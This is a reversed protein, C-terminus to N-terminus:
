FQFYIFEQEVGSGIVFVAVFVALGVAVAAPWAPRMLRSALDQSSPGLLAVAGGLILLALGRLDVGGVPLGAGHMAKWMTFYSAFSDARFLPCTELWFLLTLALGLWAPLRGRYRRDIITYIALGLGHLFGWVAFTWSAGHWLGALFMTIVMGTFRPYPLWHSTAMPVFLYDRLFRSLTMHWRQWLERLSTARYPRDFNVPLTYGFLLAVGLAMDTYASFDFFVQWAFGVAGYWGQVLDLGKGAAAAYLPNILDGIPDALFLKKLLGIAFLASGRGLREWVGSRLPDLDFQPILEHHRIIPGAIEHPFFTVYAAYREFAYRHGGKKWTDVLFSIQQFTFFSIGLPLVIKALHYQTGIAVNFSDVFFNAYKFYGLLLLDMAVGAVLTGRSRRGAAFQRNMLAAVAWNMLISGIILPLYAPNWWGYFFLSAVTLGNVALRARGIHWLGLFLSLVIPLFLLIFEQSNFLM